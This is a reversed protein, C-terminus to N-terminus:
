RGRRRLAGVALAGAALLGLTAPEPVETPTPLFVVRFGVDRYQFTPNSAGSVPSSLPSLPSDWSGGRITRYTGLSLEETWEGVNGGQDMTGYYSLSDAYSGVNAYGAAGVALVGGSKYNASNTGGPPAESVPPSDSQTPYLWYGGESDDLTPDYYAAKYWEDPSPLGWFTDAQREPPGDDTLDYVGTETSQAGQAGTLQGNALWNVFRAADFWSVRAVPFNAKGSVPAYSYSGPSGSRVIQLYSDVTSSYLGHPDSRAVAGLFQAYQAVTIETRSIFYSYDVAGYGTVDPSNGPDMVEVMDIALPSGIMDGGVPDVVVIAAILAVAAGLGSAAHM